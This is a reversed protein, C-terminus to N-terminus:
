NSRTRNQPQDYAHKETLHKHHMIISKRPHQGVFLLDSTGTHVYHVCLCLSVCVCVGARIHMCEHVCRCM